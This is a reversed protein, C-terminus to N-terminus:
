TQSPLYGPKDGQAIITVLCVINLVALVAETIAVRILDPNPMGDLLFSLLRGIVIGCFIVNTVVFSTFRFNARRAGILAIIGGLLLVAGVGRIENVLDIAIGLSNQPSEFFTQLFVAAAPDILRSSSAYFLALGSLVLVIIKFTRM